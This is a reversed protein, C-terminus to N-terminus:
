LTRIADAPILLTARWAPYLSGLACLLVAFFPTQLLMGVTPRFSLYAGITPISSFWFSAFYGLVIGIASGAIGIVIGELVISTMIQRSSWGIAMMVGIERTREQVAMMLANLITLAGILLAILSVAHSIARLVGINRDSAIMRDTPSVQLRGLQQIDSTLRKVDADTDGPALHLHIATIQDNKFSIEQLDALPLIIASRNLASLYGAIGVITFPEDM